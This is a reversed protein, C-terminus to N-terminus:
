PTEHSNVFFKHRGIEIFNCQGFDHFDLNSRNNMFFLCIKKEMKKNENRYKLGVQLIDPNQYRKM